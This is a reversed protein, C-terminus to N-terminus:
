STLRVTNARVRERYSNVVKDASGGMLLTMSAEAFAFGKETVM